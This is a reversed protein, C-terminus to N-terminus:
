LAEDEEYNLWHFPDEESFRLGLQKYVKQVADATTFTELMITNMRDMIDCLRKKGFGYLENLALCMASTFTTGINDTVVKGGAHHGMAFAKEAAENAIHMVMVDEYAKAKMAFYEQPNERRLREATHDAVRVVEGGSKHFAAKKKSRKAM